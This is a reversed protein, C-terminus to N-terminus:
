IHPQLNLYKPPHLFSLTMVVKTESSTSPDSGKPERKVHELGISERPLHVPSPPTQIPVSTHCLNRKPTKCPCLLFGLYPRLAVVSSHLSLYWVPALYFLSTQSRMTFYIKNNSYYIILVKPTFNLM